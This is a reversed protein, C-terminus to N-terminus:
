AVMHPCSFSTPHVAFVLSSPRNLHIMVLVRFFPLRKLKGCLSFLQLAIVATSSHQARESGEWKLAATALLAMCVADIAM